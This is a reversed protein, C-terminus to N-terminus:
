EEEGIKRWVDLEGTDIKIRPLDELTVTRGEANTIIEEDDARFLFYVDGAAVFTREYEWAHGPKSRRINAQATDHPYLTTPISETGVFDFSEREDAPIIFSRFPVAKGFYDGAERELTEWTPIDGPGFYLYIAYYKREGAYDHFTKAESVQPDAHGEEPYYERQFWLAAKSALEPTVVYEPPTMRRPLEQRAYDDPVYEDVERWLLRREELKGNGESREILSAFLQAGKKGSLRLEDATVVQPDFYKDTKVFITAGSPDEFEFAQIQYPSLGVLRKFYLEDTSLEDRALGWANRFGSLTSTFGGSGGIPALVAFDYGGFMAYSSYGGGAATSVAEAMEEAPMGEGANLKCALANWCRVKAVDDGRYTLGVFGIPMGAFNRILLPECVIDYPTGWFHHCILNKKMLLPTVEEVKAFEAAYEPYYPFEAAGAAGALSIVILAALISIYLPSKGISQFM